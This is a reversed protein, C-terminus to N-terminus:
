ISIPAAEKQRENKSRMFQYLHSRVERLEGCSKFRYFLIRSSGIKKEDRNTCLKTTYFCASAGGPEKVQLKCESAEEICLMM